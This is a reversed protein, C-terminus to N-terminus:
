KLLYDPLDDDLFVIESEGTKVREMLAKWGNVADDGFSVTVLSEDYASSKAKREEKKKWGPARKKM